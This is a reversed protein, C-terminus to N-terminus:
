NLFSFIYNQNISLNIPSYLRLCEIFLYLTFINNKLIIINKIQTRYTFIEVM